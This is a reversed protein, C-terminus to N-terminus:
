SAWAGGRRHPLGLARHGRLHRAGHPHRRLDRVSANPLEVRLFLQRATMGMGRGAEILAPDVARLGAHTNRVVPLLTAVWLGFVAPRTGIGLWTMALALVALTPVTTGLNFIQM